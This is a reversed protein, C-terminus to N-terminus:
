YIGPILRWTSQQYENYEQGLALVMASEEVRIRYFLAPLIPALLAVTSLWNGFMLSIGLFSLLLGSYSPHRVCRFVGARIVRHDGQIAVSTDFFRGLTLVALSRVWMGALLLAIGAGHLWPRSITIRMASVSQCLFAALFAAGITAWLITISSRDKVEADGRRARKFLNLAIESILWALGLIRLMWTAMNM